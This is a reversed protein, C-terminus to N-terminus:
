FRGLDMSLNAPRTFTGFDVVMSNILYLIPDTLTKRFNGFDFDAIPESGSSTSTSSITVNGFGNSPSISINDGAIIKNVSSEVKGPKWVNGDWILTQGIVPAINSVNVLDAIALNRNEITTWVGVDSSIKWVKLLKSSSDYWIQGELPDSPAINSSFNEALRIFNEFIYGGYGIYSRGVLYMGASQSLGGDEIVTLVEGSTKRVIYSM